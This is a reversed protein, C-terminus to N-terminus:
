HGAVYTAALDVLTSATWRQWPNILLGAAAAEIRQDHALQCSLVCFRRLREHDVNSASAAPNPPPAAIHAATVIPAPAAAAVPIVARAIGVGVAVAALSTAGVAGLRLTESGIASRLARWSPAPRQISRGSPRCQRNLLWGALTLAAATLAVLAVVATLWARTDGTPTAEVANVTWHTPAVARVLALGPIHTVPQLGSLVFQAIVVVPLLAIAQEASRVAVSLLLAVATAALASLALAVVIEGVGSPLAAGSGPPHQRILALAGLVAAQLMTVPGIVAFKGALYATPSLGAAHERRLIRREDVVERIANATGIWGVCVALLVAVGTASPAATADPARLGDPAVFAWLLGGLVVGQLGVFLARRRDALLLQVNRRCLTALQDLWGSGAPLAQGRGQLRDHAPHRSASPSDPVNGMITAPHPSESALSAVSARDLQDFLDAPDATGFQDFAQAPPGVYAARGDRDLLLVADCAMMATPSHTVTVVCRGADALRRLTVMVAREYGPDLNSTPEDLVLVDPRSLLEAAIAARKRQGASLQGVPLDAQGTLGLEALVGAVDTASAGRLAAAHELSRQLPLTPHMPDDHPVIGIRRRPAPEASVDHGDVWVSGATALDGVLARVLSTKGAGTPGAIAVLTGPQATFSVDAILRSGDAAWASLGAVALAAADTM